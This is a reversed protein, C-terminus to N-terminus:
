CRIIGSVLVLVSLVCVLWNQARPKSTMGSSEALVTSWLNSYLLRNPRSNVALLVKSITPHHKSMILSLRQRTLRLCLRSRANAHYLKSFLATRVHIYVGDIALIREQRTVLM